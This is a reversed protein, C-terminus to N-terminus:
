EEYELPEEDSCQLAIMAERLDEMAVGNIRLNDPMQNLLEEMNAALTIEDKTLIVRCVKAVRMENVESETLIIACEQPNTLGWNEIGRCSSSVGTALKLTSM